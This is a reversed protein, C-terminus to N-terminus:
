RAERDIGFPKARFARDGRQTGHPRYWAFGRRGCQPGRASIENATRGAALADQTQRSGICRASPASSCRPRPLVGHTAHVGPDSRPTRAQRPSAVQAPGLRYCRHDRHSRGDRYRYVYTIGRMARNFIGRSSGRALRRLGGGAAPGCRRGRRARCLHRRGARGSAPCPASAPSYRM